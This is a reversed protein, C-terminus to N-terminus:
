SPWNERIPPLITPAGAQARHSLTQAGAQDLRPQGLVASRGCMPGQNRANSHVARVCNATGACSVATARSKFIDAHTSNSPMNTLTRVIPRAAARQHTAATEARTRGTACRSRYDERDNKHGTGERKRRASAGATQGDDQRHTWRSGFPGPERFGSAICPRSRQRRPKSHLGM